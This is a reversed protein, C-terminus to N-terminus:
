RLADEQIKLVPKNNLMKEWLSGGRKREEEDIKRLFQEATRIRGPFIKDLLDYDRKIVGKNYGSARWTNWWGTFNQKVTMNAVDAGGAAAGAPKDAIHSLSGERWYTEFDVDVFRAKHGTVREFAKALDHYHVHDLAVELDRGDAEDPNDFLWRVYFGCDDLAVHVVAGDPTLPVRWTLIEEGTVEDAEVKPVIPGAASIAMDLYVGTTFLSVKMEYGALDKRNHKHQDLIWEGMRGKGDAHGVRFEDRYGSKKYYYDLNGFVFAKLGLEVALEYARTTWFTEGKEGVTFGDLNIFAGWCGDLGHRLDSLSEFTGKVLEIQGSPAYALLQQARVSSPDRTLIRLAYAPALARVVPIGQAGTGGVIFIKKLSTM